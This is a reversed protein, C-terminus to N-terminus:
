EATGTLQAWSDLAKAKCAVPISRPIARELVTRGKAKAAMDGRGEWIGECCWADFYLICTLLHSAAQITFLNPTDTSEIPLSYLM